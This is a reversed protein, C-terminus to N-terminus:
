LSFFSRIRSLLLNSEAQEEKKSPPSGTKQEELQAKRRALVEALHEALTPDEELLERMHDSSIVFLQAPGRAAVTATRKEGTLLSMEGFFKGPGLRAVETKNVIVAVEGENVIFLADGDDGQEIVNEGDSFLAVRTREVLHDMVDEPLAALFDIGELARRRASKTEEAERAQEVAVDRSRVDRIPFPISLQNRQFAYWIRIRVSSDIVARRAFDRIYYRLHYEIGSNGYEHLVVDPAPKTLVEPTAKVAELLAKMVLHPAAEYEASVIAERRSVRTPQTYNSIPAKALPGNPVIVEVQAETMVKTARWNIETVRGTLGEDMDFKIWDGVEFPRQAQIALGAFLNGLTEQLSLGIVATILASTTLLSGPEVGFFPLTLFAVGLYVVAQIIDRFIKPLPRALRRGVLYDVLLLFGSRGLCALILVLAVAALPKDFSRPVAVLSRFVVIAVNSMLLLVPIRIQKRDTEPLLIRLLIILVLAATIGVGGLSLYAGEQIVLRFWDGL